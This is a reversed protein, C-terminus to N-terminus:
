KYGPYGAHLWDQDPVTVFYGLHYSKWPPVWTPNVVGNTQAIPQEYGLKLRQNGRHVLDYEVTLREVLLDTTGNELTYKTEDNVTLKFGNDIFFANHLKKFPLLFSTIWRRLETHRQPGYFTVTLPQRYRKRIDACHNMLGIIADNNVQIDNRTVFVMFHPVSFPDLTKVHTLNGPTFNIFVHVRGLNVYNDFGPYLKM